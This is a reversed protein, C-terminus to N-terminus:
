VPIFLNGYLAGKRNDFLLPDLLMKKIGHHKKMHLAFIVQLFYCGTAKFCSFLFVCTSLLLYGDKCREVSSFITNYKGATARVHDFHEYM